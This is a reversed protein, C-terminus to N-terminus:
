QQKYIQFKEQLRQQYPSRCSWFLSKKYNKSTRKNAAHLESLRVLSQSLINTGEAHFFIFFILIYHLNTSLPCTWYHPKSSLLRFSECEMLRSVCRVSIAAMLALARVYNIGSSSVLIVRFVSVSYKFVFACHTYGIELTQM